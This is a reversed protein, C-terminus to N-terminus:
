SRVTTPKALLEAKRKEARVQRLYVVLAESAKRMSELRQAREAQTSPKTSNKM